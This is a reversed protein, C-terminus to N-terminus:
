APGPARQHWSLTQSLATKWRPQPQLSPSFSPLMWGNQNAGTEVKSLHGVVPNHLRAVGRGHARPLTSGRPLWTIQVSYVRPCPLSGVTKQPVSRALPRRRTRSRSTLAGQDQHTAPAACLYGTGCCPFCPHTQTWLAAPTHRACRLQFFSDFTTSPLPIAEQGSGELPHSKRYMIEALLCASRRM